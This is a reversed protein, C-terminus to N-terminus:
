VFFANFEWSFDFDGANLGTLKELYSSFATEAPDTDVYSLLQVLLGALVSSLIVALVFLKIKRGHRGLVSYRFNQLLITNRIRSASMQDLTKKAM